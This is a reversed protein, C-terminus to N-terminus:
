RLGLRRALNHLNGRDMRLRRAAAAWNGGSAALARRILQREFEAVAERLSMGADVERAAPAL